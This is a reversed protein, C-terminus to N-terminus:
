THGPVSPFEDCSVCTFTYRHPHESSTEVGVLTEGGSLDGCGHFDGGTITSFNEDCRVCCAGCVWPPVYTVNNTDGVVEVGCTM